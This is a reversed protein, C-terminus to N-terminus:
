IKRNNLYAKQFHFYYPFLLYSSYYLLSKQYDQYHLIRDQYLLLIDLDFLVQDPNKNRAKGITYHFPHLYSQETHSDIQYSSLTCLEQNPLSQLYLLSDTQLFNSFVPFPLHSTDTSKDKKYRIKHLCNYQQSHTQYHIQSTIESYSLFIYPQLHQITNDCLLISKQPAQTPLSDPFM